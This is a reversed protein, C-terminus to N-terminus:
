TAYQADMGARLAERDLQGPLIPFAATGQAYDAPLEFAFVQGDPATETVTSNGGWGMVWNGGPLRARQWLLDVRSALPDTVQEVLTATGPTTSTDIRYRAARPTPGRHRQRAGDGHRREVASPDDQATSCRDRRAPDDVM